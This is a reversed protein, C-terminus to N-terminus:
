FCQFSRPKYDEAFHPFDKDLVSHFHEPWFVSVVKLQKLIPRNSVILSVDLPWYLPTPWVKRKLTSAWAGCILTRFGVLRLWAILNWLQRQRIDWSLSLLDWFKLKQRNSASLQSRVRLGMSRQMEIRTMVDSPETKVASTTRCADETLQM